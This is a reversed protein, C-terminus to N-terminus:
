VGGKKGESSEGHLWIADLDGTLEDPLSEVRDQGRGARVGRPPLNAREDCAAANAHVLAAHAEGRVADFRAVDDFDGGTRCRGGWRRTRLKAEGCRINKEVRVFHDGDVFRGAQGRLGRAIRGHRVHARAELLIEAGAALRDRREDEHM